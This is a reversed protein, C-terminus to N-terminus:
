TIRETLYTTTRLCKRSWKFFPCEEIIHIVFAEESLLKIDALRRAERRIYEVVHYGTTRRNIDRAILSPQEALAQDYQEATIIDEERMRNLVYARRERARDPHRDPSYHTPGKALGALLAAEGASLAAAPKGFYSRAATEVGWAGRGFYIANLYLELIADKSLVTEIRSAIVMERMKRVYNNQTGVLLNKAVQQTITSGGQTDGGALNAVFARVIAREDIGKHERFRKDETAIFAGQLLPSIASLKV